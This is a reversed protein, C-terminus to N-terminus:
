HHALVFLGFVRGFRNISLSIKMCTIGAKKIIITM